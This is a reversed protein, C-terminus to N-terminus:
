RRYLHRLAERLLEEVPASPSKKMVEYIVPSVEEAKYGLNKLASLLDERVSPPGSAEPLGAAMGDVKDKLEVLLKEAKKPGLGPVRRLSTQDKAAVARVFGQPGLVSLINVALRPGIEPTNILLRFLNLEERSQFGFLQLADERVHTHVHLQAEAGPGPLKSYTTVPVAIEYGVGGVDLIIRDPTKEAIKGRLFGIM